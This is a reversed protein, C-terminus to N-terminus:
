RSVLWHVLKIVVGTCVLWVCAIQVCDLADRRDLKPLLHRV